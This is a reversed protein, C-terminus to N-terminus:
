FPVLEDEVTILQDLTMETLPKKYGLRDVAEQVVRADVDMLSKIRRNREMVEDPAAAGGSAAAQAKV